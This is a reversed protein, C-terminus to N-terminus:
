AMKKLYAALCRRYSAPSDFDLCVAPSNVKVFKVRRPDRYVIERATKARRLENRIEPAFIAPHGVRGRFIPLVIAQKAIRRAFARCLRQVIERTLLPHDVPHVLLAAGRPVWRLAALLSSLQGTRWNRNVVVRVGRPVSGRVRTANCGLVVILPELGKCNAIAIELATKGAFPALAKPFRLSRSPGAALIVAAIKAKGM